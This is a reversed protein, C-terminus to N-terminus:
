PVQTVLTAVCVRFSYAGMDYGVQAAGYGNLLSRM